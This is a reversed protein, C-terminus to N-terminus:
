GLERILYDIRDIMRHERHLRTQIIERQQRMIQLRESVTSKGEAEMAIIKKVAKMEIGANKLTLIRNLLRVDEDTYNRSCVPIDEAGFLGAKQLYDMEEISLNYSDCLEECNM